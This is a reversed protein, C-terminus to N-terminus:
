GGARRVLQALRRNGQRLVAEVAYLENSLADGDGHGRQVAAISDLRATTEALTAAISALEAVPFPPRDHDPSSKSVTGTQDLGCRTRGGGRWGGRQAHACPHGDTALTRQGMPDPILLM